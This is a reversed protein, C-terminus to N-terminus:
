EIRSGIPLSYPDNGTPVTPMYRPGNYPQVEVPQPQGVEIEIPELEVPAVPEVPATAPRTVAAGALGNETGYNLTANEVFALAPDFGVPAGTRSTGGSLINEVLNGSFDLDTQGDMNSFIRFSADQAADSPLEAGPTPGAPKNLQNGIYATGFATLGQIGAAIWDSTKLNKFM